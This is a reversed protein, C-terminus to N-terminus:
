HLVVYTWFKVLGPNATNLLYSGILIGPVLGVLIPFAGGAFSQWGTVLGPSLVKNPLFLLAIPVTLSSFGYGLAGNVTSALLAITFLVVQSLDFTFM